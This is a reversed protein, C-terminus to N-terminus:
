QQQEVELSVDLTEAGTGFRLGSVPAANSYDFGTAIKVYRADPSIGNSVDFGIWGVGETWAEAWAHGAEQVVTDDLMLYGSVYRAPYGLLRAASIFVHAQDQCVGQGAALVEEATMAVETTGKQYSVADAVATSLGHLRAVPDLDPGVGRALARVGQGARTLPTTRHFLWMPLFGGHRGIIGGTDRTEVEGACTITVETTDPEFSVLQVTNMHEDQYGLEERAGDLTISWTIVDQTGHSKPSKRLQQLGYDMPTDFRYTTQHRIKLRM